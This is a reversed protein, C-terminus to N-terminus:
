NLRQNKYSVDRIDIEFKQIKHENEHEYEALEFKDPNLACEKEPKKIIKESADFQSDFFKEKNFLIYLGAVIGAIGIFGMIIVSGRLFATSKLAHNSGIALCIFTLGLSILVKYLSNISKKFAKPNYVGIAIYHQSEIVYINYHYIGYVLNIIFLIALITNIVM